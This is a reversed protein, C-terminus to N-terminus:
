VRRTTRTTSRPCARLWTPRMTMEPRMASTQASSSRRAAQSAAQRGVKALARLACPMGLEALCLPAKHINHNKIIILIRNSLEFLKEQPKFRRIRGGGAGTLAGWTSREGPAVAAAKLGHLTMLAALADATTPESKRATTPPM